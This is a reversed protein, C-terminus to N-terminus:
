RVESASALDKQPTQHDNNLYVDDNNGIQNM